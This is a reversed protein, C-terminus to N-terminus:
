IHTDTLLKLHLLKKKSDTDFYQIQLSSELVWWNELAVVLHYCFLISWGYKCPEWSLNNVFYVSIFSKLHHCSYCLCFSNLIYRQINAYLRKLNKSCTLHRKKESQGCCVRGRVCVYLKPREYICVCLCFCKWFWYSYSICKMSSQFSSGTFKCNVFAFASVCFDPPM